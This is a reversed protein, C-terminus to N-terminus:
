EKKNNNGMRRITRILLGDVVLVMIFIGIFRVPSDVLTVIEGMGSGGTRSSIRIEQTVLMYLLVLSLLIVFMKLVTKPQM